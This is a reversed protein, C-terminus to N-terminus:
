KSHLLRLFFFHHILLFNGKTAWVLYLCCKSNASKCPKHSFEFNFSMSIFYVDGFEIEICAIEIGTVLLFGFWERVNM